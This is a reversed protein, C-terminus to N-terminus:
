EGCIECVYICVHYVYHVEEDKWYYEYVGYDYKKHKQCDHDKSAASAVGCVSLALVLAMVIAVLRKM